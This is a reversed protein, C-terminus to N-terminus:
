ASYTVTSGNSPVLCIYSKGIGLELEWGESNKYVFPANENRSWTIEEIAGGSAYYGTGGGVTKIDIHGYSDGTSLTDCYLVLVNAFGVKEGNNGDVYDRSYQRAHYVEATQDYTFDTTKGGQFMVNVSAAPDGDAPTDADRFNLRYDFAEDGEHETRYGFQPLYEMVRETTTFLCHEYGYGSRLRDNDRYYILEAFRGRVGDINEIRKNAIDSYAPESGGAHVLIGDYAMTIDIFYPRVSRISGFRGDEPLKSFVALMRSIGGEALMEYLIDAEGTGCQPMSDLLNNISLAFPRTNEPAEELPEGTLPNAYRPEPTPEPTPDPTPTIKPTASVRVTPTPSQQAVEDPNGKSCAIMMVLLIIAITVIRKM